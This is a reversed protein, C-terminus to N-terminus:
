GNRIRMVTQRSTGLKKAIASVSMGASLDDRVGQKQKKSLTSPRGLVKV